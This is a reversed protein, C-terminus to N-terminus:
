WEVKGMIITNVAERLDNPSIVGKSVLYDLVLGQSAKDLVLIKARAADRLFEGTSSYGHQEVVRYIKKVLVAPFSGGLKKGGEPIKEDTSQTM